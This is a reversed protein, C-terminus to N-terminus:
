TRMKKAIKEAATYPDMERAAMQQVLRDVSTERIKSAAKALLKEQLLGLLQQRSIKLNRDIHNGSQRLRTQHQAIADVLPVIGDGTRASTSFVMAKDAFLERALEVTQEAEPLDSKNIVLLDAIELLGAKIGQIEDGSSPNLVVVVTPALSSIEVEDQGAGITEVFIIDIGMADLLHIADWVAAAIGGLRGRTALSRIFVGEDLFHRRMRVRDGLLAGGTFPSTPDVALIGVKKKRRRFEGTMCDIVTSKGTGPAGTVGVVHARGTNSYIEKLIARGRPDGNEILTLVRAAARLDGHLIRKVLKDFM